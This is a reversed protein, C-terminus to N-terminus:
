RADRLLDGVTVIEYGRARLGELLAPLVAMTRRRDPEGGDHALVISGPGTRDLMATVAQADDSFQALYREVCVDWGVTTLGTTRVADAAERDFQGRPPRFLPAPDVRADAFARATREIEDVVEGFHLPPLDRHTFTHNAVEHGEAVTRRVLDPRAVVADGEDFFTAHADHRRLVDLVYPTYDPHPGDDFSLAVARRTTHVSRIMDPRSRSWRVRDPNVRAADADVGSPPSHVVVLAAMLAVVVAVMRAAVPARQAAAASHDSAKRDQM